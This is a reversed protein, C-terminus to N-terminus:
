EPVNRYKFVTYINIKRINRKKFTCELFLTSSKRTIGLLYPFAAFRFTIVL